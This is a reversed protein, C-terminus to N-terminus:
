LLGKTMQCKIMQEDFKSVQRKLGSFFVSMLVVGDEPPPLEQCM